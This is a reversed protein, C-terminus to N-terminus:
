RKICVFFFSGGLYSSQLYIRAERNGNCLIRYIKDSHHSPHESIYDWYLKRAEWKSNLELSESELKKSWIYAMQQM